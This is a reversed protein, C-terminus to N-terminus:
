VARFKGSLEFRESKKESATVILAEPVGRNIFFTFVSQASMNLSDLDGFSKLAEATKTTRMKYEDVIKLVVEGIARASDSVNVPLTGVRVWGRAAVKAPEKSEKPQAETPQSPTTRLLGAMQQGYEESKQKYRELMAELYARAQEKSRFAVLGSAVEVESKLM